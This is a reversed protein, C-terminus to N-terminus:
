IEIMESLVNAKIDKHLSDFTVVDVKRDFLEELSHKFGILDFLSRNSYFNM